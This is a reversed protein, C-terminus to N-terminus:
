TGARSLAAAHRPGGTPQAERRVADAVPHRKARYLVSAGALLVAVIVAVIWRPQGAVQLSAPLMLVAHYGVFASAAAYAVFLIGNLAKGFALSRWLAKEVLRGEIKEEFRTAVFPAAVIVILVLSWFGYFVVPRALHGVSALAAYRALFFGGVVLLSAWPRIACAVLSGVVWLAAMVALVVLGVALSILGGILPGLAEALQQGAIITNVQNQADQQAEWFSRGRGVVFVRFAERSATDGLLM